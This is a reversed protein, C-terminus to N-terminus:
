DGGIATGRMGCKCVAPELCEVQNSDRESGIRGTMATREDPKGAELGADGTWKM